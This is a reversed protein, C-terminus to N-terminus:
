RGEIYYIRCCAGSGQMRGMILLNWPDAWCCCRVSQEREQGHDHDTTIRASLLNKRDPATSDGIRLRDCGLTGAM